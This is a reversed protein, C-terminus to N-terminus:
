IKSFNIVTFAKKQAKEIYILFNTNLSNMKSSLIEYYINLVDHSDNFIENIM